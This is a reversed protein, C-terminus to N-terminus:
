ILRVLRPHEGHLAIPRLAENAARRHDDDALNAAIFDELEGVFRAATLAHGQAQRQAVAALPLARGEPALVGSLAIYAFCAAPPAHEGDELVVGDLRCYAYGVGVAETEHMLELQRDTLWTVHVGARAGPMVALTAPVSGYSTIRAAFVPALDRITAYTVPIEATRGFKEALRAPSGNSGSAVVAHRGRMEFRELPAMAGDRFLYSRHPPDFPYSLAHAVRARLAPDTM